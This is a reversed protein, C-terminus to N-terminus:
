KKPEEYKINDVSKKKIEIIKDFNKKFIPTGKTMDAILSSHKEKTAYDYLELLQKEDVWASLNPLIDNIIMQSNAFKFLSLYNANLRINKPVSNIAQVAILFNLGSNIHRNRLVSNVFFNRGLKFIKDGVMDDVIINTIFGEPYKVQEINDYHEYDKEYLVMIDEIKMKNVDDIKEFIKYCRKYNKFKKADDLDQKMEGIKNKYETEDYGEFIDNQWDISSLASFCNNSQSFATPSILITRLPVQHGDPDYVKKDEIQKLMKTLQYSKGTGRSGVFLAVYFNHPANCDKCQPYKVKKVEVPKNDWNSITTEEIM